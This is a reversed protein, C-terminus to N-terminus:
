PSQLSQAQPRQQPKMGEKLKMFRLKMELDNVRRILISVTEMIENLKRRTEELEKRISERDYAINSVM